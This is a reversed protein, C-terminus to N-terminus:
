ALGDIFEKREADSCGIWNDPRRRVTRSAAASAVPFSKRREWTRVCAKWNKMPQGGVKWGKSEYFDWILQADLGNKREACYAAIDELTPKTFPAKKRARAPPLSLREEKEKYPTRPSPEKEEKTQAVCGRLQSCPQPCSTSLGDRIESLLRVIEDLRGAISIQNM